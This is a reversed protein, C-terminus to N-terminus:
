VFSIVNIEAGKNQQNSKVLNLLLINNFFDYVVKVVPLILYKNTMNWCICANLEM